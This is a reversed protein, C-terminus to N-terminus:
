QVLTMLLHERVQEKGLLYLYAGSSPRSTQGHIANMGLAIWGQCLTEISRNPLDHLFVRV